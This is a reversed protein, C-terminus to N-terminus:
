GKQVLYLYLTSDLRTADPGFAVANMNGRRNEVVQWEIDDGHVGVLKLYEEVAPRNTDSHLKFRREGDRVHVWATREDEGAPGIYRDNTAALWERFRRHLEVKSIAESLRVREM